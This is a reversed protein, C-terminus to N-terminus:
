PPSAVSLQEADEAAAASNRNKARNRVASRTNEETNPRPALPSQLSPPLRPFLSFPLVSYQIFGELSRPTL